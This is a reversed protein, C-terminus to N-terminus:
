NQNPLVFAVKVTRRSVDPGPVFKWERVAIQAAEVLLPHGSLVLIDSVHGDPEITVYLMIVGTVHMQRALTPYVPARQLLVARDGDAARCGLGAAFLLLAIVFNRSLPSLQM